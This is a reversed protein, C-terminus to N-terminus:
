NNLLDVTSGRSHTSKDSICEELLKSKSINPYFRAKIEPDEGASVAWERFSKVAM